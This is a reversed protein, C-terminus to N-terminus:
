GLFTCYSSLQNSCLWYGDGDFCLAKLRDARRGVFVFIDGNNPDRLLQAVVITALGDM